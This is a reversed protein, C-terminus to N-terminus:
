GDGGQEYIRSISYVKAEGSGELRVQIHDCRRPIVPLMFTGTRPSSMRGQHEWDGHSDYRTRLEARSGKELHLRINFRSLYKQNADEFGYAGFTVGWRIDEEPETKEGLFSEGGRLDWLEGAETLCLLADGLPAFAVARLDDEQVWLGRDSEYVLLRTGEETGGSLYYKSGYSGGVAGELRMKGLGASIEVPMAGTYQMVASRAVYYLAEGVVVLSRECGEKVGRCSQTDLRFSAPMAGSIRHLCDEKFFTPYNRYIIAGTFPGDTGVSVRYSDTSLGMYCSWNRFDGLKCAYIENVVQGEVIGYKCGWLRNNCECVWDMEPVSRAFVAKGVTSAAGSIMGAVILYSDGAGYVITSANLAAVQEKLAEDGTALGSIEIGDYERFASFNGGSIRVYTTAVQVWEATGANWRKLGNPTVSTDLWNDGNEPATPETDSVVLEESNYITGDLRCLSLTLGEAEVRAGMEGHDSFDITNVYKGDPFVCLYAGMSVLQKPRGDETLTLGYQTTLDYEGYHLHTGDVWALNEKALMGRPTIGSRCLSRRRRPSMVPYDDLTMNWMESCEGDQTYLNRNLGSFINTFVQSQEHIRLQPLQM